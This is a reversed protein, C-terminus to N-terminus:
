KNCNSIVNRITTKIDISKFPKIIIGSHNTENVKNLTFIDTHATLYIHPINKKMLYDGLSVGNSDNRLSVDILVLSFNNNEIVEIAQNIETIGYHTEYGEQELIVSIDKAIILEDEVILIKHSIM